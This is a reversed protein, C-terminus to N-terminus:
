ADSVAAKGATKRLPFRRLQELVTQNINITAQLVFASMDCRRLFDSDRSPLTKERKHAQQVIESCLIDALTASFAPPGPQWADKADGAPSLMGAHELNACVRGLLWPSCGAARELADTGVPDPAAALVEQMVRIAIRFRVYASGKDLICELTTM